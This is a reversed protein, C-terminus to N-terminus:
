DIFLERCGLFEPEEGKWEDASLLFWVSGSGSLSLYDGTGLKGALKEYMGIGEIKEFDNPYKARTIPYSINELPNPNLAFSDLKSYAEKTSVGSGESRFLSIYRYGEPFEREEIIDGTGEVYAFRYGTLFFPVDAGVSSSLSILEEDSLVRFHRNLATLVAAADSSGGGLGAKVPIHKKIRISTHFKLGTKERYLRVAKEMIDETSELYGENGEIEVGDGGCFSVWLEDFFPILLFYSSLTHYGDNRKGTIKLGVNVKAKARLYYVM